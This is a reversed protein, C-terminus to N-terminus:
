TKTQEQRQQELVSGTSPPLPPPKHRSRPICLAGTAISGVSAPLFIFTFSFVADQMQRLMNREFDSPMIMNIGIVFGFWLVAGLMASLVIGGVGRKRMRAIIGWIIGTPAGILLISEM